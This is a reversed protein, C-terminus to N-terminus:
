PPQLNDWSSHARLVFTTPETSTWPWLASDAANGSCTFLAGTTLWLCSVPTGSTQWSLTVDCRTGGVALQCPSNSSLSGSQALASGALALLFVASAVTVSSKGRM